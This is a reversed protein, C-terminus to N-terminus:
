TRNERYKAVGWRTVFYAAIGFLVGVVLSGLWLEAGMSLLAQGVAEWFSADFWSGEMARRLEVLREAVPHVYEGESSDSMTMWAGLRWAGYYMPIATLPNSIFLVPIGSFRNARFLSATPVYLMIQFGLTPTWAIVSGILVGLAIRHPTDHLGFIGDVALSRLRTLM